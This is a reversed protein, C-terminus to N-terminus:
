PKRFVLTVTAGSGAASFATALALAALGLFPALLGALALRTWARRAGVNRLADFPYRPGFGLRRYLDCLTDMPNFELSFHDERELILGLDEGQQRLGAATFHSLHRPLDLHLWHVGALRGPISAFNPAAALLVGGPVLMEMAQRLAEGPAPLHELSHWFTVAAFRRGALEALTRAPQMGTNALTRRAAETDLEVGAVERGLAALRALMLGRGCGVDLVPGAPALRHVLGARQRRLLRLGWEVGGVFKGPGRGYYDADYARALDEPSPPPHIFGTGCDPCGWLDWNGPPIAAYGALPATRVAGCLPCAPSASGAEPADPRRPM